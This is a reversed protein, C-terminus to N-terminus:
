IIADIIYSDMDRGLCFKWTTKSLNVIVVPEYRILVNREVSAEVVAFKAMEATCDDHTKRQRHRFKTESRGTSLNSAVHLKLNLPMFNAASKNGLM